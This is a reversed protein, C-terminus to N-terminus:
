NSATTFTATNQSVLANGERDTIDTTLTVEYSTGATLDSDPRFRASRASLTMVTGSVPSGNQTLSFTSTDITSAEMRKSFTVIIDSDVPVDTDGDAPDIDRVNPRVTEGTAFIWSYGSPMSNGDLDRADTTITVRFTSNEDLESAPRMRVRTDARQMRISGSVTTQTDLNEVIVSSSDLTSPDMAESLDAWISRHPAQNTAQDLPGTFTVTPREPTETTTFSWSYDQALSEGARSEVDTTITVTYDAGPQLPSDPIFTIENGTTSLSGSVASGQRTVQFSSSDITDFNMDESFVATIEPDVTVDTALAPPNTAVVTPVVPDATTFTWQYDEALANGAMDQADTTVTATYETGAQLNDDPTFTVENDSVDVTGAVTSGDAEVVFTSGSFSGADVPEDFRVMLSEFVPFGAEGDRPITSVVMPAETDGMTDMGTDDGTDEAVDQEVDAAVDREVDPGVDPEEIDAMTDMGIDMEGDDGTDEGFQVLPQGCGALLLV